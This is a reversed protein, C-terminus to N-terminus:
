AKAKSPDIVDVDFQYFDSDLTVIPMAREMCISALMADAVLNGEPKAQKLIRELYKLTENNTTPVFSPAAALWDRVYAWAESITLPRAFVRPHTVVRLFAGISDWPIAVPTTDNLATELWARIKEHSPASEDVARILVNSDILL